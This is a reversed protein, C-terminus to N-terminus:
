WYEGIKIYDRERESLVWDRDRERWWGLEPWWWKIACKACSYEQNLYFLSLQTM